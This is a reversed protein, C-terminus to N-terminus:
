HRLRQSLTYGVGTRKAPRVSEQEMSVRLRPGDSTVGAGELKRVIKRRVLIRLEFTARICGAKM